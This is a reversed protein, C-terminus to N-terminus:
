WLTWPPQRLSYIESGTVNLPINIIAYDQGLQELTQRIMFRYLTSILKVIFIYLASMMFCVVFKENWLNCKKVLLHCIKLTCVAHEGIQSHVM